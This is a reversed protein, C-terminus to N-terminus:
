GSLPKAYLTYRKTTRYGLGEYLGLAGSPNDTDVGLCTEEMGRAKHEHLSAALLARALGQRRFPRRVCIDETYGRKRGYRENEQPDIFNLVMGAVEQGHWAVKWLHPQFLRGSIWAQYDEEQMPRHGWHDQFAEDLARAIARYHEPQAPRLEFGAPLPLRPIPQSLDRVMDVFYREPRYGRALLLARKECEEQAAGIRLAKAAQPPQHAALQAARREFFDLLWRGLGKGRQAPHVAFQLRYVLLGDSQQHWTVRAYAMLRGEVELLVMDRQPDFNALHAQYNAIDAPTVLYDLGDATHCQGILEALAAIDAQGGFPHARLDPLDPLQLQPMRAIRQRDKKM